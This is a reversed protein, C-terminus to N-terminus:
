QMQIDCLQYFGWFIINCKCFAKAIAINSIIAILPVVLLGSGLHSVMDFFGYYQGDIVTSTPPLGVTPLGAEISGLFLFNM